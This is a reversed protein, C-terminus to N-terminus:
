SAAVVPKYKKAIRMQQAISLLNNVLWYLVLGSPFTLFMFTFIIPLFQMVKAQMPDAPTPNLKTQYYMSIGMVIPLIYFPDQASLDLIWGGLPAHRMEISLFLVKYLAFFVPIQILMPLCGGLPNVKNEQYLRMIEQNLLQKDHGYTQRIQEVKPQLQKMAEMSRYSKDALPYFLLKVIVTLLIIALAYNGLVNNFFLMMEMLPIALFHFWGYDISRELELNLAELTKLAKPGIYWQEVSELEGKAPVTLQQSVAGIRHTPADYDFYFKHMRQGDAPPIIVALFYKDSFGAWGAKAQQSFEKAKIDDYAMQLRTKDLFATPGQFDYMDGENQPAVRLLQQFRYLPSPQANSNVVRDRVTVLYSDNKLIYSKEFTLGAGNNWTLSLGSEGEKGQFPAPQWITERTPAQIGPLSIFGAEGVFFHEPNSQLFRVPKGDEGLHDKYKAFNIGVLRGGQTSVKGELLPSAFSLLKGQDQMVPAAAVAPAAPSDVAAVPPSGAPAPATQAPATTTQAAPEEEPPLFISLYVQYLMIVLFSLILALTTRQEM